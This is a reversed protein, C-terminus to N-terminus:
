FPIEEVKGGLKFGVITPWKSKPNDSDTWKIYTLEVPEALWGSEGYEAADAASHPCPDSSRESWWEEAKRRIRGTHEVCIWESIKDHLDDDIHYEVRLTKPHSPDDEKGRKTHEHYFTKWVKCTRRLPRSVIFGDFATAAHKTFGGGGDGYSPAPFEEECVTCARAQLLAPARCVKCVKIKPAIGAEWGRITRRPEVWDIPGHEQICGAFDLVLCNKKGEAIRLGRGVMQYYLGPSLTPRLLVVCDTQPADFGTTLVQVNVLWRLSGDRFEAVFRARDDSSTSGYVEAVSEGAERLLRAVHEAHSIGACFVLCSRRGAAKSVMEEVTQAVLGDENVVAELERRAYDGRTKKVESVDAEANGVRTTLPSLFGRAILKKVSENHCVHHFPGGETCISGTSTRYPTATLGILRIRHNTKELGEIFSRYMGDGTPPVCHAEDVIVLDRHGFDEPKRWISQIAGCIIRNGTDRYGLGASYIGVDLEPDLKRLSAYAQQVLEKVHATVIARGGWRQVDQCIAALLPTKGAGTPLVVVPHDDRAELHQYVAEKAAAQYDRLKFTM